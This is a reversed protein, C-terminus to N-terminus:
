TRTRWRVGLAAVLALAGALAFAAADSSFEAVTGTLVPGILAGLGWSVSLLGMAVGQGVGSREAGDAALPYSATFGISQSIGVAVMAAVFAPTGLPLAMVGVTPALLFTGLGVLKLRDVRDAIRAITITTIAGAIAVLTFAIGIGSQSVGSDGLHLSGLTQM